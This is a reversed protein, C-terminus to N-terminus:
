EVLDRYAHWSAHGLLPMLVVLGFLLTAFGALMLMAITAAWLTLPRPNAGYARLSTVTATIFDCDRDILLPVTVVSLTFVGFALTSGAIIWVLSLPSTAAHAVFSAVDVGAPQAM